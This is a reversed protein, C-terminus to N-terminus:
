DSRQSVSKWAILAKNFCDHAVLFGETFEGSTLHEEIIRAAIAIESRAQQQLNPDAAEDLTQLCATAIEYVGELLEGRFTQPYSEEHDVLVKILAVANSIEMGLLSRRDSEGTVVIRLGTARFPAM